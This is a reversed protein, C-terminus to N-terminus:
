IKFIVKGIVRDTPIDGIEELRSDMAVERNDGMVFLYNKNVHHPFSVNCQGISSKDLYEELLKESDIYVSGDKEISIQHGGSCIVRRVLVQNNYYFAIIDGEEVKSTKLILLTEGSELSPEMGTGNYRVLQFVHTFLNLLIIAAAVLGFLSKTVVSIVTRRTNKKEDETKKAIVCEEPM